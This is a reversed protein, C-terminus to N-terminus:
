VRVERAHRRRKSSLTKRLAQVARDIIDLLQSASAGEPVKPDSEATTSTDRSQPATYSAPNSAPQVKAEPTTTADPKPTTSDDPKPTTYGSPKPTTSGIPKTTTYGSPKPSSSGTSGSSLPSFSSKTGSAYPSLGATASANQPHGPTPTYPVPKNSNDVQPTEKDSTPKPADSMPKDPNDVTPTEKDSTPKSRTDKGSSETAGGAGTVLPPGPIQYKLTTGYIMVKIGPDTAKYLDVGKTGSALPDTGSGTVKLNICYPYNQAKGLNSAGMLAIFEQRLLYEGAKVFSPIKVTVKNGHQRVLDTAWVGSDSNTTGVSIQGSESIKNWEVNGLSVKTCDGNCNALYNLVPGHHSEPWPTWQSTVEHGAVVEVYRDAPTAGVNCNIDVTGYQNPSIYAQDVIKPTRWSVTPLTAQQYM